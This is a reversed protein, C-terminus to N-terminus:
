EAQSREYGEIRETVKAVGMNANLMAICRAANGAFDLFAKKAIPDESMMIPVGSDGGERISQVLPIQGLFPIDYEEALRKGGDKGFIYYKHDPLEAPTFYSMNEVLGIVPVKLQAQGFMAIGKKADALAVDQPTTVVIVGTVPVSQMLTLHIDGTGPPMDIILYDLEDWFVDSVFQKIASSAMPGRWVVANKEDVLLGISMLKIGYRELPVILGKEGEGGAMMMPREGRVGFMIPVSPGYIDADLLGVSAGGRALALAFNAAVTSKGVGGKGSVVAIINRVRPLVARTDKRSTSTHSTFKVNVMAEKDVLLRV